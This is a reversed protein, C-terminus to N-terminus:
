VSLSFDHGDIIEWLFLPGRGKVASTEVSGFCRGPRRYCGNGTLLTVPFTLVELIRARLVVGVPLTPHTDMSFGAPTICLLHVAM